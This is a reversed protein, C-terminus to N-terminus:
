LKIRIYQQTLQNKCIPYNIFIAAQLRLCLFAFKFLKVIEILSFNFSSSHKKKRTGLFSPAPVLFSGTRIIIAVPLYTV